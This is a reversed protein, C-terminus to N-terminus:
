NKSLRKLKKKEPKIPSLSEDSSEDQLHKPRSVKGGFYCNGDEDIENEEFAEENKKKIEKLNEMKPISNKGSKKQYVM